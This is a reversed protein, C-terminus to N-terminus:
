AAMEPGGRIESVLAAVRRRLYEVEVHEAALQDIAAIAMERYIELARVQERLACNEAALDEIVLSPVDPELVQTM